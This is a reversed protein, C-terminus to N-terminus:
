RADAIQKEWIQGLRTRQKDSLKRKASWWTKTSEIFKQNWADLKSTDVNKFIHDIMRENLEELKM